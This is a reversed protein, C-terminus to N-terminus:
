NCYAFATSSAKTLSEPITVSTLGTCDRFANFGIFTVSNPIDVSTLGSCGYFSSGGIATVSNPITVSTLGSCGYFASEGVMVVPYTTGNYTVKDPIVVSGSYTNFNMNQFTVYVKDENAYKGYFIGDVYFHYASASYAVSLMAAILWLRLSYIIRM